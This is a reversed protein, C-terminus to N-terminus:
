EKAMNTELQILSLYSNALFDLQVPYETSPSPLRFCLSSLFSCTKGRPQIQHNTNSATSSSTPNIFLLISDMNICKVRIRFIISYWQPITFLSIYLRNQKCSGGFSLLKPRWLSNESLLKVEESCLGEWQDSDEKKFCVWNNWKSKSSIDIAKEKM